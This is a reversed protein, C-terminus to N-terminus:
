FLGFNDNNSILLNNGGIGGSPGDCDGKNIRIESAFCFENEKM